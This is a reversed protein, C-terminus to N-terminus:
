GPKSGVGYKITLERALKRARPSSCDRATLIFEDAHRRDVLTPYLRDLVALVDSKLLDRQKAPYPSRADAELLAACIAEGLEPRNDVIELCHQACCRAVSIKSDYLCALYDNLVAALRDERDAGSLHALLTLGFERHYTGPHKLLPILEPWYCYFLDPSQRCALSLAEYCHYHVMIHPHKLMQRVLEDRMELDTIAWAAFQALDADRRAIERTFLDKNM